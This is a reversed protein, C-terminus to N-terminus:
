LETVVKDRNKDDRDALSKTHLIMRRYISHIKARIFGRGVRRDACRRNAFRPLAEQQVVQSM